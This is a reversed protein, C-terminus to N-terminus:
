RQTAYNSPDCTRDQKTTTKPLDGPAERKLLPLGLLAERSRMTRHTKVPGDNEHHQTRPEPTIHYHLLNMLMGTSGMLVTATLLPKVNLSWYSNLSDVKTFWCCPSTTGLDDTRM